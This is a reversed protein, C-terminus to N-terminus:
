IKDGRLKLFKEVAEEWRPVALGLERSIAANTMASFGPRKAPLHFDAMRGRIISKKINLTKFVLGAWEYRSCSGTNPLHWTGALGAKLAAMAAAAADETWTPASIEDDAVRLEGSRKSWELLKGIFNRDGSGFLWSIRLILHRAGTRKIRLEGELKSAGYRSLPNPVDNEDYPVPAKVGDFIYDSGFHVLFAGTELAALALNEPGSANTRFADDPSREAEDVLNYAACNVILGPRIAAAERMVAGRDGIDLTDLDRRLCEHGQEELRRIFAAALQGKSGTVLIKM